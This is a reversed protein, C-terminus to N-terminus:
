APAQTITLATYNPDNAFTATGTGTKTARLTIPTIATNAPVSVSVGGSFPFEVLGSARQIRTRLAGLGFTVTVEDATTTSGQMFAAWNVTLRTPYPVAALAFPTVIDILGGTTSPATGPLAASVELTPSAFLTTFVRLDDIKAAPITTASAAQRLRALAISTAPVTPDSPTANPTGVIVTLAPITADFVIIDNRPLGGVPNATLVDLTKQTDNVLLSAGALTSAQVVSGGAAILVGTSATTTQSVSLGSLVGTRAIGQSSQSLLYALGLKQQAESNGANDLEFEAM